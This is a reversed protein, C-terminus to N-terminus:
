QGDGAYEIFVKHPACVIWTGLPRTQVTEASLKGQKVCEKHPCNAQEMWAEGNEVRIVNEEEAGTAEEAIEGNRIVITRTEWAPVSVSQGDGYRIIFRDAAGTKPRLLLCVVIVLAAFAIAAGTLLWNQKKRDGTKQEMSITREETKGYAFFNM